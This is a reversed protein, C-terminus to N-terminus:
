ILRQSPLHTLNYRENSPPAFFSQIDELEGFLQIADSITRNIPFGDVVLEWDKLDNHTATFMQCCAGGAGSLIAAMKGDFMPRIIDVKESDIELSIANQLKATEPNILNEMFKRINEECEKAACLFVPRQSFPSNPSQNQWVVRNPTTCISIMKFCFLIFNKTNTNTNNLNYITHFGSGDVGDAICFTLLYEEDDLLKLTTLIRELTKQVQVFYPSQVGIPQHPDPYLQKSNRSLLENRLVAVKIHSPFNINEPLLTQRLQTYKIRGIELLDLLFLAKDVPVYNM